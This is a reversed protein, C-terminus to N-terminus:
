KLSIRPDLIAYTIDSILLGVMTLVGVMLQVGMIVNFDKAFISQIMLLGMGNINFIYEVAVSGSIIIPLSTGLLTVIPLIGNRVVHRTVVTFEKVGKARATRIYDSRIVDLMGTRAFRSLGALGGYSLTIIPLSIHWIIDRTHQLTNLQASHEAEFGGIPFIKWPDGVAFWQQLLLGVFFSPLSYFAFLVVGVGRDFWSGHWVASMIGIPIALFYIIIFATVNLALSYKIRSFVLETVPKKHVHSIGLDGKLLRGWYHGFQTDWITLKAKDWGSWEWREQHEAHWANWKAIVEDRKEPPDSQKWQFTGVLRNEKVRARNEEREEGSLQRSGSRITPRYSSRILWRLVEFLDKDSLDKRNLLEILVPVAYPGYDELQERAERKEQVSAKRVGPESKGDQDGRRISAGATRVTELVGDANLDYWDNWFRPRDLGFDRRFNRQAENQQQEKAADGIEESSSQIAMGGGAEGPRGPAMMIVLWTVFSIGFLTPIMLLLRRIIFAQV